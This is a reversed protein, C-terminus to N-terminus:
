TIFDKALGANAAFLNGEAGHDSIERVCVDFHSLIHTRILPQAPPANSIMKDAMRCFAIKAGTYEGPLESKPGMSLAQPGM